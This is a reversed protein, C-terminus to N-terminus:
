LMTLGLYNKWMYWFQESLRLGGFAVSAHTDLVKVTTQVAGPVTTDVPTYVFNVPITLNNGSLLVSVAPALAAASSAPTVSLNAAAVAYNSCLPALTPDVACLTLLSTAPGRQQFFVSPDNSGQQFLLKRANWATFLWAVSPDPFLNGQLARLIASWTGLNFTVDPHYLNPTYINASLGPLNLVFSTAVPDLALNNGNEFVHLSLSSLVSPLSSTAQSGQLFTALSTLGALSIYVVSAYNQFLQTLADRHPIAPIYPAAALQNAYGYLSDVDFRSVNMARMAAERPTRPFGQSYRCGWRQKVPDLSDPLSTASGVAVVVGAAVGATQLFNKVNLEISALHGWSNGSCVVLQLQSKAPGRLITSLSAFGEISGDLDVVIATGSGGAAVFGALVLLVFLTMVVMRM